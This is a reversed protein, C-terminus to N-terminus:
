EEQEVGWSAGKAAAPAKGMAADTFAFGVRGALKGTMGWREGLARYLPSVTELHSPWALHSHPTHLILQHHYFPASGTLPPAALPTAATALSRSPLTSRSSPLLYSALSRLPRPLHQM